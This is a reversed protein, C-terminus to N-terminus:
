EENESKSEIKGRSEGKNESEDEDADEDDSRKAKAIEAITQKKPKPIREIVAKVDDMSGKTFGDKSIMVGPQDKCLIIYLHETEKIEKIKQYPVNITKGSEAFVTLNDDYFTTNRQPEGGANRTMVKYKSNINSRPLFYLVWAAMAIILVAEVILMFPSGGRVASYIGFAAFLVVIIVAAIRLTRKTKPNAVAAMGEHYLKKTITIHNEAITRM